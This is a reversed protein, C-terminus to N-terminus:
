IVRKPFEIGIVLDNLQKAKTNLLNTYLMIKGEAKLDNVIQGWEQLYSTANSTFSISPKNIVNNKSKEKNFDKPKECVEAKQNNVTYDTINKPMLMKEIKKLKNALEDINSVTNDNCLKIIDTEFIITQMQSKKINNGLKPYYM